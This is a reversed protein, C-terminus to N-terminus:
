TEGQSDILDARQDRVAYPRSVANGGKMALYPLMGGLCCTFIRARSTLLTDIVQYDHCHTTNLPATHRSATVCIQARAGRALVVVGAIDEAKGYGYTFRSTLCSAWTSLGAM